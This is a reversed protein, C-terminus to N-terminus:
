YLLWVLAFSAMLWTAPEPITAVNSVFIGMSGDTFRARFTLEGFDNFGSARGEQDGTGSAFILAAITRVDGPAIELPGGERAVLKLQGSPDQAWIGQVNEQADSIGPGTLNAQFAVQGTGNLVPDLLRVFRAEAAIGPAQQGTQVVLSLQGNLGESWIGENQNAGIGPGSLLGGFALRGSSNMVPANLDALQVGQSAGPADEGVGMIQQLPGNRNSWIGLRAFLNPIGPDSTLSAIFAIQGANNINPITTFGLFRTSSDGGPQSDGKRIVLELSGNPANTWIGANTEPTVDIGKLFGLVATDGQDNIRPNDGFPSEFMQEDFAAGPSTGPAEEGALAVRTIAGATGSWLGSSAPMGVAERFSAFFAVEGSANLAPTTAFDVFVMGNAVGPVPDGQRAVLQFAEPTAIWLGHRNNQDISDGELYGRFAVEGQANLNLSLFRDFRNTGGLGSVIDGKQVVLELSGGMDLWISTKGEFPLGATASPGATFAIEGQNNILPATDFRLFRDSAVTGSPPTGTLAVTRVSSGLSPQALASTAASSAVFLAPVILYHFRWKQLM